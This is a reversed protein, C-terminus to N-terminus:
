STIIIWNNQQCISRSRHLLWVSIQLMDEFIFSNTHAICRDLNHLIGSKPSHTLNHLVGESLLLSFQHEPSRWTSFKNITNSDNMMVDISYVNIADHVSGKLINTIVSM